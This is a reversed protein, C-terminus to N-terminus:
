GNACSDIRHCLNIIRKGRRKAACLARYAGGYSHNVYAIVLDANAVIWENRRILALRPPVSELPPYLVADCLGQAQLDKIHEHETSTIYPTVYITEIGKREKKLEKCAHACLRDFEGHRGLYCTVHDAEATEERLLEKVLEKVDENTVLFAHGIFSVTM